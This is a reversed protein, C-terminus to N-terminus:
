LLSPAGLLAAAIAIKAQTGFSYEAISREIGAGWNLGDSSM